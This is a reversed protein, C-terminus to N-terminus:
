VMVVEQLITKGMIPKLAKRTVLDVKIGLLNSLHEELDLLQFMGVVEDFEVLIDIDSGETQEGRAYSGFVGISEVHFEAKLREKERSIIQKINNVTKMNCWGIASVKGHM